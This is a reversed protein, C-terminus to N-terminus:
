IEDCKDGFTLLDEIKTPEEDEWCISTFGKYDKLKPFEELCCCKDLYDCDWHIGERYPKPEFVTIEGNMDRTIYKFGLILFCQLYSKDLQTVEKRSYLTKKMDTSSYVTLIDLGNRYKDNYLLTDRNYESLSGNSIVSGDKLDVLGAESRIAKIGNRLVVMNGLKIDELKM